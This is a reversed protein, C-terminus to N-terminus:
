FLALKLARVPQGAQIKRGDDFGRQLGLLLLHFLAVIQWTLGIGVGNAM